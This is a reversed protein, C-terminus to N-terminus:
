IRCILSITRYKPLSSQSLTTFSYGHDGHECSGCLIGGGSLVVDVLEQSESSQVGGVEAHGFHVVSGIIREHGIVDSSVSTDVERAPVLQADGVAESGVPPLSQDHLGDSLHKISASNYSSGAGSSSTKGSRKHYDSINLNM